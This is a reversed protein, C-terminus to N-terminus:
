PIRGSFKSLKAISLCERLRNKLVLKGLSESKRRESIVEALRLLNWVFGKIRAKVFCIRRRFFLVEFTPVIFLQFFLATILYKLPFHKFYLRFIGRAHFYYAQLSIKQPYFRKHWIVAFPSFNCRYGVRKARLNWDADECYLFFGEDLLGIKKIVEKKILLGGGSVYDIDVIKGLQGLRSGHGIRWDIGTIGDIRFGASWVVNNPEYYLIPGGAIGVNPSNGISKVIENLWSPGVVEDATFLAIMEGKVSKIGANCGAAFGLNKDNIILKVEPFKEKVIDPSGDTSANDVVIIEYNPYALHTLSTLCEGLVDRENWNVVIISVFPKNM